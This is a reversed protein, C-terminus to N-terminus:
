AAQQLVVVRTIWDDDVFIDALYVGDAKQEVSTRDVLGLQFRPYYACLTANQLAGHHYRKYAKQIRYTSINFVNCFCHCSDFFQTVATMVTNLVEM